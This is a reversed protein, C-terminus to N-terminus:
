ASLHTLERDVTVDKKDHHRQQPNADKHRGMYKDIQQDLEKLEKMKNPSLSKKNKKDAGNKASHKRTITSPVNQRQQKSRKNNSNSSSSSSSANHTSNNNPTFPRPRKPRESGNNSTTHRSYYGRHSDDNTNRIIILRKIVVTRSGNNM